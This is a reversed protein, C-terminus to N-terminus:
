TLPGANMAAPKVGIADVPCTGICAGCGTCASDDIAPRARGGVVPTFRIARPECADGCSRCTVGQVALCADSIRAKHRWPPVGARVRLAGPECRRVCEGCWTCGEREFSAEPYGHLDRVLISEPCHDVCAACRTCAAVFAAEDLSWPPRIPARMGRPDARFLNRRAPNFALTV